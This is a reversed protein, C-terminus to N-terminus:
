KLLSNFEAKVDNLATITDVTVPYATAGHQVKLNILAEILNDLVVGLNKVSNEIKIKDDLSVITNGFRIETANNNFNELPKAQSHLGIIVIGDSISHVRPTKPENINGSEFWNDIDRDNFLVICSDGISVPYTIGKGNTMPMYVPCDVLLPFEWWGRGVYTEKVALDSIKVKATMAVPDFNEIFGIRHCNFKLFIDRTQANNLDALSPKTIQRM